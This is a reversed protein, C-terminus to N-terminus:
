DFWKPLSHSLASKAPSPSFFMTLHSMFTFFIHYIGRFLWDKLRLAEFLFNLSFFYILNVFVLGLMMLQTFEECSM